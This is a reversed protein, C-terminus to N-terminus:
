RYGYVQITGTMNAVSIFTFGDFSSSTRHKLSGSSYAYISSSDGQGMTAFGTTASAVYPNTLDVTGWQLAEGTVGINWGDQANVTQAGVTNGGMYAMSRDYIATTDTTGGSRLRHGVSADSSLSLNYAIRYSQYTSSFCTNLAISTAGGSVTILGTSSVTGSGSSLTVSAPVIPVLGNPKAELADVRAAVTSGSATNSKVEVWQSSNGDNLYMFMVGDNTNFWLDGSVPSTPATPSPTASALLDASVRWAGKTSDYVYQGYVQGNTPSSPFDLAPM